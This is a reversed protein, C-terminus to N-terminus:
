KQDDRTGERTRDHAANKLTVLRTQERGQFSASHRRKGKGLREKPTFNKGNRDRPSVHLGPLRGPGRATAMSRTASQLPIPGKAKNRHSPDETREEEVIRAECCM